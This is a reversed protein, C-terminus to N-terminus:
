FTQGEPLVLIKRRKGEGEGVLGQSDARRDVQPSGESEGGADQSPRQYKDNHLIGRLYHTGSAVYTEKAQGTKLLQRM